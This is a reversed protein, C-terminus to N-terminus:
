VTPNFSQTGDQEGFSQTGNGSHTNSAADDVEGDASAKAAGAAESEIHKKAKAGRPAYEKDTGFSNSSSQSGFEERLDEQPEELDSLASAEAM